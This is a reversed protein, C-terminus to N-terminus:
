IVMVAAAHFSVCTGLVAPIAWYGRGLYGHATPMSESAYSSAAHISVRFVRLPSRGRSLHPSSLGKRDSGSDLGAKMFRRPIMRPTECKVVPRRFVTRNMQFDIFKADM